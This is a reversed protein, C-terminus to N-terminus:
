LKNLNKCAKKREEAWPERFVFSINAATISDKPPPLPVLISKKEANSFSLRQSSLLFLFAQVKESFRCSSFGLPGKFFVGRSVSCTTEGLNLSPFPDVKFSFLTILCSLLFNEKWLCCLLCIYVLLSQWFLSLFSFAVLATFKIEKVSQSPIQIKLKRARKKLRFM